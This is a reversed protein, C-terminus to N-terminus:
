ASLEEHRERRGEKAPRRVLKDAGNALASPPLNECGDIRIIPRAFGHHAPILHLGLDRLDDPLESFEGSLTPRLPAPTTAAELTVELETGLAERLWQSASDAPIQLSTSVKLVSSAAGAALSISGADRKESVPSRDFRSEVPKRPKETM